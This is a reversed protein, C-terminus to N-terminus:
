AVVQMPKIEPLISVADVSRALLHSLSSERSIVVVPIGLERLRTASEAFVGDGSGIVVRDFRAATWRANEVQKLLARDAGDPGLGLVVLGDPWCAKASYGLHPNVGVVVLDTARVVALQRFALSAQILAIPGSMPGGMLNELDLLHLTRGPPVYAAREIRREPQVYIHRPRLPSAIQGAPSIVM